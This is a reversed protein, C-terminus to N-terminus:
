YGVVMLKFSIVKMDNGEYGRTTSIDDALICDCVTVSNCEGNPSWGRITVKKTISELVPVFGQTVVSQAHWERLKMEFFDSRHDVM